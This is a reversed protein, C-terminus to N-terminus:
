QYAVMSGLKAQITVDALEGKLLKSNQLSFADTSETERFTALTTQMGAIRGSAGCATLNRKRGHKGSAEAGDQVGGRGHGEGRGAAPRERRAREHPAAEGRQTDM